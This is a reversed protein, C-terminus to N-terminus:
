ITGHFYIGDDYFARGVSILVNGDNKIKSLIVHSGGGAEMMSASILITFRNFYFSEEPSSELM